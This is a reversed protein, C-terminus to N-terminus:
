LARARGGLSGGAEGCDPLYCIFDTLIPALEITTGAPLGDWIQFVESPAVYDCTNPPLDVTGTGDDPAICADDVLAAPADPAGFGASVTLILLIVVGSWATRMRFKLGDDKTM